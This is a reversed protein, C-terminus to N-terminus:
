KRLTGKQLNNTMFLMVEELADKKGEVYGKSWDHTEEKNNHERMEANYQRNNQVFRDVMKADHSEYGKVAPNTSKMDQPKNMNDVGKNFTNITVKETPIDEKQIPPTPPSNRGTRKTLPQAKSKSTFAGTTTDTKNTKDTKDTM